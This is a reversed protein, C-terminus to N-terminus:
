EGLLVVLEAEDFPNQGQTLAAIWRERSPGYEAYTEAPQTNVWEMFKTFDQAAKAYQGELALALGRSDYALHYDPDISVARNCYTLAEASRGMLSMNWCLNNLASRYSPDVTLVHQLDAISQEYHAEGLKFYAKGRNMYAKLDSPARHIVETFDAVAKSM